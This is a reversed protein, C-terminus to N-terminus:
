KGGVAIMEGLKFAPTSTGREKELDVAKKRSELSPVIYLDGSVLREEFGKVGSGMMASFLEVLDVVKVAGPSPTGKEPYKKAFQDLLDEKELFVPLRNNNGEGPQEPGIEFETTYFLPVRGRESFIGSKDLRTADDLAKVTPIIDYVTDYKVDNQAMAKPRAKALKLAFEMNVATIRAMDWMQSTEAGKDKADRRADELVAM